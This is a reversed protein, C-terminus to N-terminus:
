RVVASMSTWISIISDTTLLPFHWLQSSHSLNHASTFALSAYHLNCKFGFTVSTPSAPYSGCPSTICTNCSYACSFDSLILSPYAMMRSCSTHTRTTTCICMDKTLPYRDPYLKNPRFVLDQHLPDYVVIVFIYLPLAFMDQPQIQDSSLTGTFSSSSTLSVNM